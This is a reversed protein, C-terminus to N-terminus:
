PLFVQLIREYVVGLIFGGYLWLPESNTKKGFMYFAQALTLVVGIMVLIWAMKETQAITMLGVGVLVGVGSVVLQVTVNKQSVPEKEM